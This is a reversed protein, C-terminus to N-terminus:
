KIPTWLTGCSRSAGCIRLCNFSNLLGLLPRYWLDSHVVKSPSLLCLCDLLYFVSTLLSILNFKQSWYEICSLCSSRSVNSKRIFVIIMLVSLFLAKNVASLFFPVSMGTHASVIGEIRLCFWCTPVVKLHWFFIHAARSSGFDQLLKWM